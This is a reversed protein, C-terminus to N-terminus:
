AEIRSCNKNRPTGWLGLSIKWRPGYFDHVNKTSIKKSVSNTTAILHMAQPITEGIKFINFYFM